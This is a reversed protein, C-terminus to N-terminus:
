AEVHSLAVTLTDRLGLEFWAMLMTALGPRGAAEVSAPIQDLDTLSGVTFVAIDAHHSSAGAAIAAPPTPQVSEAFCVAPALGVRPRASVRGYLVAYPCPDGTRSCPCRWWRQDAVAIVGGYAPSALRGSLMDPVLIYGRTPQVRTRFIEQVRAAVDDSIGRPQTADVVEIM